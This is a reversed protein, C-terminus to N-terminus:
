EKGTVDKTQHKKKKKKDCRFHTLSGVGCYWCKSTETFHKVCFVHLLMMQGLDYVNESPQKLIRLFIWRFLLSAHAAPISSITHWIM